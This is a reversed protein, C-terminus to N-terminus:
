ENLGGKEQLIFTKGCVFCDYEHTTIMGEENIIEYTDLRDFCINCWAINDSRKRETLKM